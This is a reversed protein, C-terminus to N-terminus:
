PTEGAFVHAFDRQMSVVVWGEAPALAQAREAREAYAYERAADDHRLLVGLSPRGAARAFQLLEIDGDSNGVALIPRKGVQTQMLIAKGPGENLPLQAHDLRLLRLGAGVVLVDGTEVRM